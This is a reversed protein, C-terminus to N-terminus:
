QRVEKGEDPWGSIRWVLAAFALWIAASLYGRDVGALVWGGAFLSGWLVKLFMAFAFGVSDRKRFAYFMLVLGVGTWLLGWTWLPLIRCLFRYSPTILSYETPTFLSYGYILDLFALYLLVSGRRAVRENVSEIMRWVRRM